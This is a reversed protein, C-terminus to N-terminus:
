LLLCVQVNSISETQEEFKETLATRLREKADTEEEEEEEDDDDPFEEQDIEAVQQEYEELDEDAVQDADETSYLVHDVIIFRFATGYFLSQHHLM